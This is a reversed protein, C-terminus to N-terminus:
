RESSPGTGASRKRIPKPRADIAVPRETIRSQNTRRAEHGFGKWDVRNFLESWQEVTCLHNRDYAVSQDLVSLACDLRGHGPLECKRFNATVTVDFIPM